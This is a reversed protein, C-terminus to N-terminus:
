PSIDIACRGGVQDVTINLRDIEYLQILVTHSVLSRDFESPLADELHNRRHDSSADGDNYMVHM